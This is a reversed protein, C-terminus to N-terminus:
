QTCIYVYSSRCLLTIEEIPARDFEHNRKRIVAVRVKEEETYTIRLTEILYFYRILLMEVHLTQILYILLYLHDAMSVDRAHVHRLPHWVDEFAHAEREILFCFFFTELM